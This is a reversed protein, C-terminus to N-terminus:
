TSSGEGKLQIETSMLSNMCYFFVISTSYTPF